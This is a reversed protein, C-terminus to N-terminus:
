IKVVMKTKEAAYRSRGVLANLRVECLEGQEAASASREL